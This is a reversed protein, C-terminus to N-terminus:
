RAATFLLLRRDDRILAYYIVGIMLFFDAGIQPQDCYCRSLLFSYYPTYRYIAFHLLNLVILNEYEPQQPELFHLLWLRDGHLQIPAEKIM